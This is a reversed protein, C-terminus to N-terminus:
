LAYYHERLCAAITVIQLRVVFRFFYAIRLVSESLFVRPKKADRDSEEERAPMEPLLHPRKASSLIVRDVPPKHVLQPQQYGVPHPKLKSKPHFVIYGTSYKQMIVSNVM